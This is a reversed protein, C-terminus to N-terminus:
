NSRAKVTAAALEALKDNGLQTGFNLKMRTIKWGAPTKLLEHNYTGIVTWFAEGKDNPLFHTAHIQSVSQAHDGDITVIHNTILHQTYKYGPLVTKWASVIQEPSMTEPQGAARGAVASAYSTYDLVVKDAFQAKVEDWQGLDAFLAVAGIVDIIKTREVMYSETYAGDAPLAARDDAFVPGCVISAAFLLTTFRKM